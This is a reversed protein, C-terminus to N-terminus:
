LGATLGRVFSGRTSRFSRSALVLAAARKRRKVEAVTFTAENLGDPLM